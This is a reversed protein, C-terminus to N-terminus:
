KEEKEELRKLWREMKQNELWTTGSLLCIHEDLVRACVRVDCYEEQLSLEAEDETVPTPNEGRIIRALKLAAQALEAAEEAKQELIAAKSLKEAIKKEM